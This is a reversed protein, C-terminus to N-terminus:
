GQIAAQRYPVAISLIGILPLEHLLRRSQTMGLKVMRSKTPMIPYSPAKRCGDEWVM